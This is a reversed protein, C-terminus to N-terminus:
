PTIEVEPRPGDETARCYHLSRVSQTEGIAASLGRRVYEVADSTPQEVVEPRFVDPDVVAKIAAEAKDEACGGKGERVHQYIEDVAIDFGKAYGLDFARDEVARVMELRVQM